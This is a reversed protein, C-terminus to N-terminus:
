FNYFIRELKSNSYVSSGVIVGVAPGMKEACARYAGLDGGYPDPIDEGPIM